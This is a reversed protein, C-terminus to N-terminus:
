ENWVQNSSCACTRSISSWVKGGTCTACNLGNLETNDPCICNGNIYVKGNQCINACATGNLNSGLPCSNVCNGQSSFPYSPCNSCAGGLFFFYEYSAYKWYDNLTFILDTQSARGTFSIAFDNSIILFGSLGLIKSNVQHFSAKPTHSLQRLASSSIQNFGEYSFQGGIMTNLVPVFVVYSILVNFVQTNSTVM